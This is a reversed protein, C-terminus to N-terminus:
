EPQTKCIGCYPRQELLKQQNRRYVGLPLIHWAHLTKRDSTEISFPTVQIHLFGFIEPINLDKFWTLIVRHLYFAHTQLVPITAVLGLIGFYLTAPIALTLGDNQIVQNSPSPRWQYFLFLPISFLSPETRAKPTGSVKQYVFILNFRKTKSDPCNFVQFRM